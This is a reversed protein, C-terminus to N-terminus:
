RNMIPPFGAQSLRNALSRGVTNADTFALLAPKNPESPKGTSGMRTDKLHDWDMQVGLEIPYLM